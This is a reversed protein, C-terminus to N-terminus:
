PLFKILLLVDSDDWADLFLSIIKLPSNHSTITPIYVFVLSYIVIKENYTYVKRLM